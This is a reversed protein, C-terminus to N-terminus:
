QSLQVTTPVGIVVLCKLDKHFTEENIIPVPFYISNLLKSGPNLELDVPETAWYGLTGYFLDEFDKLLILLQTIEEANLQTTNYALQKLYAKAHTSNFIKVMLETDERTSDPEITHMVVERMGRKNLDSKGLMGSPGKMHLTAGYWQLVQHNFDVTLGLQVMLYRGIIIEYGIGSEGKDNNVHFRHNNIKSRSFKPM